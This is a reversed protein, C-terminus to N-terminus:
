RVFDMEGKRAEHVKKPNLEKGTLDDYIKEAEEEYWGGEVAQM